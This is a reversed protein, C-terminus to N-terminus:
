ADQVEKLAEAIMHMTQVVRRLAKREAKDISCGEALPRQQIGLEYVSLLWQEPPWDIHRHVRIVFRLNDATRIILDSSRGDSSRVWQAKSPM